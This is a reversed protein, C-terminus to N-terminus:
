LNSFIKSPAGIAHSMSRALRQHHKSQAIQAVKANAHPAIKYLDV